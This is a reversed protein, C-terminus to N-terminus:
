RQIWTNPKNIWRISSLILFNSFHSHVTIVVTAIIMNIKYRDSISRCEKISLFFDVKINIYLLAFCFLVTITVIFNQIRIKDIM